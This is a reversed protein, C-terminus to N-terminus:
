KFRRKIIGKKGKDIISYFRVAMKGAARGEQQTYKVLHGSSNDV